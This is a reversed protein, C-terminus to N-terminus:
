QTTGPVYISTARDSRFDCRLGLSSFNRHLNAFFINERSAVSLVESPSKACIQALPLSAIRVIACEIADALVHYRNEVNLTQSSV